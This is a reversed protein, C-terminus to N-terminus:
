KNKKLILPAKSFSYMFYVFLGAFFVTVTRYQFWYHIVTPQAAVSFWVIPTLPVALFVGESLFEKKTRTLFSVVVACVTILVLGALAIKGAIGPFINGWVLRLARCPDYSDEFGEVVTVGVRGFFSSFGNKFGNIDTFLTVYLLKLIWIFVYGYAWASFTKIFRKWRGEPGYGATLLVLAPFAYTMLPTSYFDFLQTLAGFACFLILEDPRKSETFLMICSFIFCLIFCCSFQLSQSVVAPNVLAVTIGFLVSAAVGRKKALLGMVTFCLIWFFFAVTKRIEFYNLFVLLPRILARFGMWYRVYNSNNEMGGNVREDLSVAMNWDNHESIHQPNAIVSSPDEATMNYSHMIILSDTYNDLTYVPDGDNIPTDWPHQGLLQTASERANELIASQPILSVAFLLVIALVSIFFPLLLASIL